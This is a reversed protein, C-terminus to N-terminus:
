MRKSLIKDGLEMLVEARYMVGVRDPERGLGDYVEEDIFEIVGGGRDGCEGQDKGRRGKRSYRCRNVWHQCLKTPSCSAIVSIRIQDAVTERARSM